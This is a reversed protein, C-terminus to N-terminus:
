LLKLGGFRVELALAGPERVRTTLISYPDDFDLPESIIIVGIANQAVEGGRAGGPAGKRGETKIVGIATKAVQGRRTGEPAGLSRGPVGM